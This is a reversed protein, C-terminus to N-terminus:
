NFHKELILFYATNSWTKLHVSPLFAAPAPRCGCATCSVPVVGAMNPCIRSVTSVFIFLWDVGFLYLFLYKSCSRVSIADKCSM